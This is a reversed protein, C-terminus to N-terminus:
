KRVCQKRMETIANSSGDLPFSFYPHNQGFWNLELLAIGSALIKSVAHDEDAFYLFRDGWDQILTVNQIKNDWKIRAPILSYGSKIETDTLNPETTFGIYAREKKGGCEVALWAKVNNYPFEMEQTPEVSPSTAYVQREGSMKDVSTSTEWQPKQLPTQIALTNIFKYAMVIFIILVGWTFLSTKIPPKAGCKPCNQASTSIQEGCEACKVLAM